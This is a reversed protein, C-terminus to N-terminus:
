RMLAAYDQGGYFVNVIIITDNKVQYLIITSKKFTILQIDKGLDNRDIGANPATGIKECRDFIQNIFRQATTLDGSKELIYKLIENINSLADSRYEVPLTKM